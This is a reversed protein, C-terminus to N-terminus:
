DARTKSGQELATPPIRAGQLALGQSHQSPTDQTRGWGGCPWMVWKEGVCGPLSQLTSSHELNRPATPHANRGLPSQRAPPVNEQDLESPCLM